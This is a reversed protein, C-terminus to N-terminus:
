KSILFKIKELLENFVNFVKYNIESYLNIKKNNKLYKLFMIPILFRFLNLRDVIKINVHEKYKDNMNRKSDDNDFILDVQLVSETVLM